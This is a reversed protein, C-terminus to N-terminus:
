PGWGGSSPIRQTQAMRDTRCCLVHAWLANALNRNSLHSDTLRLWLSSLPLHSVWITSFPGSTGLSPGQPPDMPIPPSKTQSLHSLPWAAGPVSQQAGVKARMPSLDPSSICASLPGAEGLDGGSMSPDSPESNSTLLTLGSSLCHSGSERCPVQGVWSYLEAKHLPWSQGPWSTACFLSIRDRWGLSM